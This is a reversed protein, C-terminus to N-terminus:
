YRRNKAESEELEKIYNQVVKVSKEINLAPIELPEM